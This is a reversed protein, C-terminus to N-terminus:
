RMEIDVVEGFPAKMGPYISAWLVNYSPAQEPFSGFMDTLYVLAVPNIDNKDVWDFVPRFDTGGGGCAKLTVPYDDPGFEEARNVQADCYVVHVAEPKVDEIIANLEASFQDLERQGISGSTDVALVIKGFRESHLGPLILGSHLFRRNPHTWSYDDRSNMTMWQRLIARWDQSPECIDSVLREVSGPFKGQAKAVNAAQVVAERWEAKTNAEPATDEPADLVGGPGPGLAGAPAQGDGKDSQDDKGNGEKKDKDKKDEERRVIRYIEEASMGSFRKEPQVGYPLFTWPKPRGAKTATENEATFQQYIAQDCAINFRRLDRGDRRFPHLYACHLVEEALLTKCQDAPLAAIADPNFVLRTGDTAAVPLSMGAEENSQFELRMSLVGLFPQELVLARRARSLKERAEQDRVAGNGITPATSTM